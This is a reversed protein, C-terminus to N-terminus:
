YFTEFNIIGINILGLYTPFVKRVIWKINGMSLFYGKPRELSCSIAKTISISCRGLFHVDSM